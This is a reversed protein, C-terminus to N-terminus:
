KIARTIQAVAELLPAFLTPLNRQRVTPLIIALAFPLGGTAFVGPAAVGVVGERLEGKSVAYGQSRVLKVQAKVRDPVDVHGYYDATTKEDLTSLLAYGHAGMHLPFRVGIEERIHVVHYSDLVQELTVWSDGDRVACSVTEKVEAALERMTPLVIKRLAPLVNASLRIVAPGILYSSGFKIVFSQRHLTTLLRHVVTRNLKLSTALEGLTAPGLRSIANLLTLANEATKSYDSRDEVPTRAPRGRVSTTADNAQATKKMPPYAATVQFYPHQIGQM